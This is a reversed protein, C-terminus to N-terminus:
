WEGKIGKPTTIIREPSSYGQDIYMMKENEEKSILEPHALETHDTEQMVTVIAFPRTVKKIVWPSHIFGAPLYVLCSTTIVHKELEPGLYFWIEGGLDMPDDPNTGIHIVAEPSKHEHPGHGMDQWTKLGTVNRPSQFVWHVHYQHSGKFKEDNVWAVKVGSSPPDGPQPGSIVYKDYKNTGM